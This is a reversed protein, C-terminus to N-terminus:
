DEMTTTQSTVGSYATTYTNTLRTNTQYSATKDARVSKVHGTFTSHTWSEETYQDGPWTINEGVSGTISWSWWANNWPFTESNYPWGWNTESASRTRTRYFRSM